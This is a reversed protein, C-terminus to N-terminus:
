EYFNLFFHTTTALNPTGAVLIADTHDFVELKNANIASLLELLISLSPPSDLNSSDLTMIKRIDRSKILALTEKDKRAARGSSLYHSFDSSVLILTDFNVIPILCSVTSQLQDQSLHGSILLPVVQTNPMYFKIFPMIVELSHDSALPTPDNKTCNSLQSIVTSDALVQGYPTTWPQSSTFIPADGLEGHNPGLLIIRSYTFQSLNQFYRALSKQVLLHHAVVGGRVVPKTSSLDLKPYLSIGQNVDEFRYHTVPFSPKNNIQNTDVEPYRWYIYAFVIAVICILLSFKFKIM